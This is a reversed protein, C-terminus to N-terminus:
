RMAATMVAVSEQRDCLLLFYCFELLLRSRTLCFVSGGGLDRFAILGPRSSAEKSLRYNEILWFFCFAFAKRACVRRRPLVEALAYECALM